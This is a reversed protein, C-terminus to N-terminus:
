RVIEDSLFLIKEKVFSIIKDKDKKNVLELVKEDTLKYLTPLLKNFTRKGWNAILPKIFGEVFFFDIFRGLIYILTISLIKIM